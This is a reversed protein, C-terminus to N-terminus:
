PLTFAIIADGKKEEDIHPHGGAGVVVFQKGSDLQAVERGDTISLPWFASGDAHLGDDLSLRTALGTALTGHHVRQDTGRPAAVAGIRVVPDSDELWETVAVM